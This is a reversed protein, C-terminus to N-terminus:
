AVGMTRDARNGAHTSGFARRRAMTQFVEADGWCKVGAGAAPNDHYKGSPDIEM